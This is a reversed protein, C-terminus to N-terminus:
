KTEVSEPASSPTATRQQPTVDVGAKQLKLIIEQADKNDQKALAATGSSLANFQAKIKDIQVLAKDQQEHAQQLTENDIVLFTTQIGIYLTFLCALLFVPFLLCATSACPSNTHTNTM